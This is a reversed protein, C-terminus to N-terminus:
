KFPAIDFIEDAFDYEQPDNSAILVLRGKGNEMCINRYWAIGAADLNTCPEDLLWIPVNAFVVSALKIRQKMGSSLQHLFKNRAEWLGMINLMEDVEMGDIAPKISFHWDLAEKATFDEVLDLGPACWVLHQYWQEIEVQNPNQHSVRGESTSLLGAALQLLTSKGSGNRGTIAYTKGSEFVANVKKFIWDYHYRRGVEEFVINM